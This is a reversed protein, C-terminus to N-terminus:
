RAGAAPLVVVGRAVRLAEALAVVKQANGRWTLGMAGITARAEAALQSRLEADGCLRSLVAEFDGDKTEDFLLANRGDHLIEGINPRRPAVIAKSLALYEFVKLPSAYPTVAPQLAIDFAAVHAPVESRPVVGTFHVRDVISLERALRELDHRAPGDGVVLLRTRTPTDGRAMWRLVRDVGHWDRVFGTFGLVLADSWGRRAKADEVTPAHAFHAENIGNPIVVLREKPVGGAHVIDALVRTVPLVSDAACWAFRESWRALRPLALGGFREREDALPSNVELLMPIGFRRKLWAGAVLFLNCREYLVDPKFDLAARRLRWYAVLSYSLELLEYAAKPLTARLRHVWTIDQGMQEGSVPRPAVVRVEHGLERLAAIMEEIHVTQGDNSAVRHHYLIKL